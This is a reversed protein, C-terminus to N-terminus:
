CFCSQLQSLFLLSSQSQLSVQKVPFGVRPHTVWANETITVSVLWKNAESSGFVFQQDDLELSGQTGSYYGSLTTTYPFQSSAITGENVTVGNIVAGEQLTGDPNTSHNCTATTVTTCALSARLEGGGSNNSNTLAVVVPTTSSANSSSGFNFTVTTDNAGLNGYQNDIMTWLSSVDYVGIPITISALADNTVSSEWLNNSNGAGAPGDSLMSYTVNNATDTATLGSPEGGTQVYGTYPIPSGSGNTVGAFLTMDYNREAYGTTSGAACNGAGAACVAGAGQSIYNATIGNAGGIQISGANAAVAAVFGLISVTTLRLM